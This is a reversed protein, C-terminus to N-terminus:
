KNKLWWWLLSLIIFIIISALIIFIPEFTAVEGSEMMLAGTISYDSFFSIGFIVGIGLAIFLGVNKGSFKTQMSPNFM